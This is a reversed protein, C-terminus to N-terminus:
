SQFGAEDREEMAAADQELSKIVDGAAKGADEIARFREVQDAREAQVSMWGLTGSVARKANDLGSRCGARYGDLWAAKAEPDTPYKTM